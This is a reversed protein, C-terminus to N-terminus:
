NNKVSHVFQQISTELDTSAKLVNIFASGIIAGKAYECALSFTQHDSIGFGILFPHKLEIFIALM